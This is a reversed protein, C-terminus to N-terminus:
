DLPDGTLTSWDLKPWLGRFAVLSSIAAPPTPWRPEEPDKTKAPLDRLQQRWKLWAQHQAKGGAIKEGTQLDFQDTARLLEDRTRRLSLLAESRARETQWRNTQQRKWEEPGDPNALADIQEQDCDRVMVSVGFGEVRYVADFPLDPNETHDQAVGVQYGLERLDDITAM